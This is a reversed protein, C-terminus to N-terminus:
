CRQKSVWETVAYPENGVADVADILRWYDNPTDVATHAPSLKTWRDRLTYVARETDPDERFSKVPHIEGQKDFRLLVDSDLVDVATGLPMESSYNTTYVADNNQHETVVRSVETTPVFPCDGTVRCLVDCGTEEIVNAHRAVLNDEPGQQYPIGSRKCFQIIADNEPEDGVAVVTEDIEPSAQGREVVWELVRKEGLPYLVKGPLRTSGLRAQISCVITM